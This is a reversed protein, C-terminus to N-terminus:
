DNGDDDEKSHFFVEKEVREDSDKIPQSYKMSWGRITWELTDAMQAIELYERAVKVAREESGYRDEIESDKASIMFLFIDEINILALGKIKSAESMKM